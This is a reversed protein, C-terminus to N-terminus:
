MFVLLSFYIYILSDNIKWLSCHFLLSLVLPEQTATPDWRSWCHMVERSKVLIFDSGQLNMLSHLSSSSSKTRWSRCVVNWKHDTQGDKTVVHMDATKNGVACLQQHPPKTVARRWCTVEQGATRHLFMLTVSVKTLRLWWVAKVTLCVTCVDIGM